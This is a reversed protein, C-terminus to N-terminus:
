IHILSLSDQVSLAMKETESANQFFEMKDRLWQILSGAVFVAGELAYTREEGIQWAITSLLQHKSEVPKPGANLMLFCGTGYTNKAQGVEFCAQGFLASQQDGAIGAIPLSKGLISNDIEALKGSSPVIEPLASLEIGFIALLEEDWSASELNCLMTRSANTVDTKFVNGATMNWILWSDVTGFCIEGAKMRENLGPVENLLWRMKSASFYPDLVLGTKKRILSEKGEAKLQECIATSRRCQWVIAPALPKGTAKEWVVTTERQNTIGLGVVDEIRVHTKQMVDHMTKQQTEWIQLPDQEVWGTQPYHCDLQTSSQGVIEGRANVLVTRCSTTGQDLAMILTM